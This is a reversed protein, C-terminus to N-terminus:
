SMVLFLQPSFRRGSAAFGWLPLSLPFLEEDHMLVQLKRDQDSCALHAGARGKSWLGLGVAPATLLELGWQRSLDPLSSVLSFGQDESTMVPVSLFREWM